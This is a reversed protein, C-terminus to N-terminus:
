DLSVMKQWTIRYVLMGLTLLFLSWMSLYALSAGPAQYFGFWAVRILEIAHTLPSFLLIYRYQEPIILIPYFIGSLLFLPRNILPVVRSIDKFYISAAGVMLSLGFGIAIVCLYATIMLLPDSIGIEIGMWSYLLFLTMLAMCNMTSELFCRSLFADFPKVHKYLFLGQNGSITGTASTMINAFLNFPMIGATFFLIFSVGQYGARTILSFILVFALIQGMPEVVVWIYGFRATGFRTKMERGVLASIVSLFVQWSSRM